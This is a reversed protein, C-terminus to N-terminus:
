SNSQSEGFRMAGNLFLRCEPPFFPNMSAMVASITELAISCITNM